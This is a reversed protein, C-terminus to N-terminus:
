IYAITIISTFFAIFYITQLILAYKVKNYVVRMVIGIMVVISVATIVKDILDIGSAYLLVISSPLLLFGSMGALAQHNKINTGTEPVLTCAYQLILSLSILIVFAVSVNLTPVLWGFLFIALMPLVIAFLCIYYIVSQKNTAAHQSFTHHIDKPWKKVLFFLGILLLIISAAGLYKGNILLDM